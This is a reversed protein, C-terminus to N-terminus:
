RSARLDFISIDLGLNQAADRASTYSSFHSSKLWAKFLRFHSQSSAQSHEDYIQGDKILATCDVTQASATAIAILSLLSLAIGPRIINM